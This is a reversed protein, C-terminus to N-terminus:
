PRRGAGGTGRAPAATTRGSARRTTAGLLPDPPGDLGREGAQLAVPAGVEVDLEAGGDRQQGDGPAEADRDRLREVMRAATVESPTLIPSNRRMTWGTTSARRASRRSSRILTSTSASSVSSSPTVFRRVSASIMENAKRSSAAPDPVVQFCIPMVM